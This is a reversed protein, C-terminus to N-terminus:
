IPWCDDTKPEMTGKNRGITGHGKNHVYQQVECSDHKSNQDTSVNEQENILNIYFSDRSQMIPCHSKRCNDYTSKILMCLQGYTGSRHPCRKKLNHYTREM